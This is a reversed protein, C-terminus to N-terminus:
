AEVVDICAKPCGAEAQRLCQLMLKPPRPLPIPGKKRSKDAFHFILPCIKRCYGCHICTDSIKVSVKKESFFLM